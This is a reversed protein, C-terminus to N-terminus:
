KLSRNSPHSAFTVGDLRKLPSYHMKPVIAMAVLDMKEAVFVKKHVMIVILAPDEKRVSVGAIMIKQHLGNQIKINSSFNM